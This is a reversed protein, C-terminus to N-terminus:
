FKIKLLRETQGIAKVILENRKTSSFGLGSLQDDTSDVRMKSGLAELVKRNKMLDEKLFENYFGSPQEPNICNKLMFMYHKNGIGIQDDWYNPSYMVVSVPVFQNTTLGWIENSSVDYPLKNILTFGNKRSFKIAAVTVHENHRVDKNYNFNYIQGNFEIEARFGDRGGRHNYNHVYFLYVGEEMQNIDQWTINEVAPVNSIPHIIDVDLMGGTPSLRMKNGFYIDYGNPEKCHADMDNQNRENDNWQISFRLVGDVNGGANKVNNKMSSDTINGTYTWSFANNWKFMSKSDKNKPAILSVMNAAHKNELFVEIERTSPLINDIFDNITIEEVKSFKKPNIAVENLMEDFISSGSVRKASDKNAFLINNITIDDLTAFKRELSDLYGLDTIMKQADELMRKTYIPKSRKYGDGVIFEFKGVATNLDMGESINILLTGMSHNKLKAVVDGVKIMQEWVFNDKEAEIDIKDYERKCKLFKTLVTEWENGRYLSNQSILELVTLLSDETIEELSRKFVNKTDRYNGQIDGISMGSKNVLKDPLVLYFHDWRIVEGDSLQEFNHDTGINKFNSVFVNSVVKSKLYNSLIDFVPQWTTDNTKIDWITQVKNDKISVVNGITKIFHRCCSCDFERRKRFLENTGKPFSDLYLLWFEDKDVEVQFLHSVDKSMENFNEQLMQNLQNFEM